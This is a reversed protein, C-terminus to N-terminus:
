TIVSHNSSLKRLIILSTGPGWSTMTTMVLLKQPSIQFREFSAAGELSPRPSSGWCHSVPLSSGSGPSRAELGPGVSATHGQPPWKIKRPIDIEEALSFSASQSYITALTEGLESLRDTIKYVYGLRAKIGHTSFCRRGQTM